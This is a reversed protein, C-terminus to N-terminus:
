MKKFNSLNLCNLNIQHNTTINEGTYHDAVDPNSIAGEDYQGDGWQQLINDKIESNYGIITIADFEGVIGQFENLWLGGPKDPDEEPYEFALWIMFSWGDFIELGNLHKTILNKIEDKTPVEDNEGSDDGQYIEILSNDEPNSLYRKYDKDKNAILYIKPPTDFEYVAFDVFRYIRGVIDELEEDDLGDESDIEDLSIGALYTHKKMVEERNIDFSESPRSSEDEAEFEKDINYGLEGAAHQVFKDINNSGWQNCVAITANTLKIANKVFHRKGKYKGEAEEISSIVGISGQLTSPFREELEEKVLGHNDSVYQEVVALVLRGKRYTNGNFIYTSKDMAM